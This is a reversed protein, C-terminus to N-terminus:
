DLNGLRLWRGYWDLSAPEAAERNSLEAALTGGGSLNIPSAAGKVLRLPYEKVAEVGEGAGATARRKCFLDWAASLSGGVTGGGSWFDVDEKSLVTGVGGIFGLSWESKSLM